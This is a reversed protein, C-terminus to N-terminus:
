IDTRQEKHRELYWCPPCGARPFLAHACTQTEPPNFIFQTRGSKQTIADYRTITVQGYPQRNSDVRSRFILYDVAYAVATVALVSSFGIVILRKLFHKIRARLPSTVSAIIDAPPRGCLAAEDGACQCNAAKVPLSVFRRKCRQPSGRRAMGFFLHPDLVNEDGM